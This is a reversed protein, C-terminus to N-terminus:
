LREIDLLDDQAAFRRVWLDDGSKKNEMTSISFRATWISVTRWQGARSELITERPCPRNSYEQIELSPHLRFVRVTSGLLAICQDNGVGDLAVCCVSVM